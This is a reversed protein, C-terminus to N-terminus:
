PRSCAETCSPPRIPGAARRHPRRPGSRLEDSSWAGIRQTPRWNSTAGSGLKDLIRRRHTSVTKPSLFLDSAIDAIREGRALRTLVDFERPSLARGLADQGSWAPRARSRRVFRRGRLDSDGRAAGRAVPVQHRLRVRRLGARQRCGIALLQGVVRCLGRGNAPQGGGQHDRSRRPGADLSRDPVCRAPSRGVVGPPFGRRHRLVGTVRFSESADLIRVLGAAVLDHDDVVVVDIRQNRPRMVM